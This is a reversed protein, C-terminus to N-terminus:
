AQAYARRAGHDLSFSILRTPQSPEPLSDQQGSSEAIAAFGTKSLSADLTDLVTQVEAAELEQWHREIVRVFQYVVL